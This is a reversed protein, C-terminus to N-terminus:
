DIAQMIDELIDQPDEIGVSVRILGDSIGAMRRLDPDVRLHSSSAPHLVLTDVDGLTPALSCFKLRNMAKVAADFGDKMEFSLMGGFMKMQKKAISFHPHTELGPYNVVTINPHESLKYAVFLANSSHKHMRLPLTKIGQYVLWSEFPSCNSGTLKMYNWLKNKFIEEDKCVVVGAIGSGHGNLYKTTSHIVFDVGALLPQQLYPTAFTNDIASWRGNAKAVSAVEEIDICSLTPNSPTELYILRISHDAKLLANVKDTDSLDEYIVEIGRTSLIKQLLETTGGYLYPQTLLKDGHKLLGGMLVDIAAMGSNTMLGIGVIDSDNTELAAIKSATAEVTPNGYRGYTHGIEENAFIRIGQNIDEFDFSSTAYIPLIHPRTTRPDPWEHVALSDFRIM